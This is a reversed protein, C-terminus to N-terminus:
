RSLRHHPRSDAPLAGMFIIDFCESREEVMKVAVAGNEAFQVNHCGKKKLFAGLLKRNVANDEVVLICLTLPDTSSAGSQSGTASNESDSPICREKPTSKNRQPTDEIKPLPMDQSNDPHSQTSLAPSRERSADSSRIKDRSRRDAKGRIDQEPVPSDQRSNSGHGRLDRSHVVCASLAKGLNGPGISHQLREWKRYKEFIRMRNGLANTTSAVSLLVSSEGCRQAIMEVDRVCEESSEDVLVVDPEVNDTNELLECHFWVLLYKELAQRAVSPFGSLLVSLHEGRVFTTHRELDLAPKGTEDQDPDCRTMPIEVTVETGKEPESYVKIKGALLSVLSKVISMGLGVGQSSTADEQTFPVFLHNDMFDKSMGRGTDKVTFTIIRQPARDDFTQEDGGHTNSADLTIKVSGEMTYKLANGIINMMIRRLAGPETFYNWNEEHDIESIVMINRRDPPRDYSQGSELVGTIEECLLAINSSVYLGKFSTDAGSPPKIENSHSWNADPPRRQRYKHQQREFQNIKAYSLVSSLTDNLTSGSAKITDTLGRQFPDLDTDALLQVSGLIGHLPTGLLTLILGFVKLM